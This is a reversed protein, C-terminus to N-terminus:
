LKIQGKGLKSFFDDCGGVFEEDIFVMPITKWNYKASLVKRKEAGEATESDIYDFPLNNKKFYDAVKRCFPCYDNGVVSIKTM